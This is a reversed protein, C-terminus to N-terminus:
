QIIPWTSKLNGKKLLRLTLASLGLRFDLRADEQVGPDLHAINQELLQSSKEQEVKAKHQLFRQRQTLGDAAVEQDDEGSGAAAEAMMYPSAM